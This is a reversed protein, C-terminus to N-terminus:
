LGRSLGREELITRARQVIGSQDQPDAMRAAAEATLYMRKVRKAQRRTRPDASRGRRRSGFLAADLDRAENALYRGFASALADTVWSPLPLGYRNCFTVCDLLALPDKKEGSKDDVQQYQLEFHVLQKAYLLVIEADDPSLDQLYQRMAQAQAQIAHQIALAASPSPAPFPPLHGMNPHDARNSM